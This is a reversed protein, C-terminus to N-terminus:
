GGITIWMAPRYGLNHHGVDSGYTSITGNQLVYIANCLFQGPTRLWWLCYSGKLPHVAERDAMKTRLAKRSENTPLYEQVEDLSLFFVYDDTDAGGDIGSDPNDANINHTLLIRSREEDTFVTEYFVQNCWYRAHVYFLDDDTGTETGKRNLPIKSPDVTFKKWNGGSGLNNTARTTGILSKEWSCNKYQIWAPNFYSESRIVRDTLLLAKGDKATLVRWELADETKEDGDQEYIGMLLKERVPVANAQGLTTTTRENQITIKARYAGAESPTYSFETDTTNEFSDKLDDGDYIRCTYRSVEDMASDVSWTIPLGACGNKETDCLITFADFYKVTLGHARAYTDMGSNIYCYVILSECGEFATDHVTVERSYCFLKELATCDAFAQADISRVTDPLRVETIATNGYFARSRVSELTQANAAGVCLLVFLTTLAVRIFFSRLKM